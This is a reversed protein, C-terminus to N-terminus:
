GTRSAHAFRIRFELESASSAGRHGFGGGVEGGVLVGGVGIEGREDVGEREVLHRGGVVQRDTPAVQRHERRQQAALAEVLERRHQRLGELVPKGRDLDLLHDVLRGGIEADPPHTGEEARGVGNQRCAADGQRHLLLAARGGIIPAFAAALHLDLQEALM